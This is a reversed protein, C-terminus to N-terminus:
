RQFICHMKFLDTWVALQSDDKLLEESKDSELARLSTWMINIFIELVAGQGRVVVM